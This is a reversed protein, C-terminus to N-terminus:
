LKFGEAIKTKELEQVLNDSADKGLKVFDEAKLPRMKLMELPNTKFREIGQWGMARTKLFSEGKVISPQTFLGVIAGFFSKKPSVSALYDSCTNSIAINNNKAMEKLGPVAKKFEDLHGNNLMKKIVEKPVILAGFSPKTNMNNRQQVQMKIRRKKATLNISMILSSFINIAM